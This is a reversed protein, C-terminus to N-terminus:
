EWASAGYNAIKWIGIGILIIGLVFFSGDFLNLWDTFESIDWKLTDLADFVAHLSIGLLGFCIENWGHVTLKPFRIRVRYGIILAIFLGLVILVEIVILFLDAPDLYVLVM